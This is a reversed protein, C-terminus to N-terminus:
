RHPPRRPPPLSSSHPRRMVATATLQLAAPGILLAAAARRLHFGGARRPRGKRPSGLWSSAFLAPNRDDSAGVPSSRTAGRSTRPHEHENKSGIEKRPLHSCAIRWVALCTLGKDDILLRWTM